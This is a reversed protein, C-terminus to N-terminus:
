LDIERDVILVLDEDEGIGAGAPGASPAAGRISLSIVQATPSFVSEVPIPDAADSELLPLRDPVAGPAFSGSSRAIGAPGTPHATGALRLSLAAVALLAAGAALAAIRPRVLAAIRERWGRPEDKARSLVRAEFGTWFAENTRELALIAFLGAPDDAAIARRCAACQALHAAEAPAFPRGPDVAREGIAARVTKCGSM